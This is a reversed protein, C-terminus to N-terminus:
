RKTVRSMLTMEIWAGVLPAVFSNPQSYTSTIIEIWAGVLPAVKGARIMSETKRIIEIWAGVLPAVYVIILINVFYTIEIWAGVLPAVAQIIENATSRKLKM